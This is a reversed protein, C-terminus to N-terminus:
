IDPKPTYKFLPFSSVLRAPPVNVSTAALWPLSAPHSTQLCSLQVPRVLPSCGVIACYCHGPFCSLSCLIAPWRSKTRQEYQRAWAVATHRTLKDNAAARVHDKQAPLPQPTAKSHAYRYKVGNLAADRDGADVVGKGERLDSSCM